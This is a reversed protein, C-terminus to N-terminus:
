PARTAKSSGRKVPTNEPKPDKGGSSFADTSMSPSPTDLLDSTSKYVPREETGSGKMKGSSVPTLLPMEPVKTLGQICPVVAIIEQFSVDLELAPVQWHAPKKREYRSRARKVVRPQIRVRQQPLRSQGIEQLVSEVIHQRRPEQVLGLPILYGLGYENAIFHRAPNILVIRGSM